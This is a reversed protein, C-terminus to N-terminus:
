CVNEDAHVARAPHVILPLIWLKLLEVREQLSLEWSRMAHARSLAKNLALSFSQEPTVYGLLIGLYKCSTQIPIGFQLLQAQAHLPWDGALLFASKCKNIHLGSHASFCSMESFVLSLVPIVEDPPLKIVILLDDM